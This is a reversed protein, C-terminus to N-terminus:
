CHYGCVTTNCIFFYLNGNDIDSFAIRVLIPSILQYMYMCTYNSNNILQSYHLM